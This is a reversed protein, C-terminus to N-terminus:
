GPHYRLRGLPQPLVALDESPQIKQGCRGAQGHGVVARWHLDDVLGDDIQTQQAVREEGQACDFRPRLDRGIVHCQTLHCLVASGLHQHDAPGIGAALGHQELRHTQGGQQRARTQWHRGRRSALHTKEM